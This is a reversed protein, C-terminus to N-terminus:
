PYLLSNSWQGDDGLSWRARRHLRHPEAFWFEARDAQLLYGGWHPPREVTAGAFRAKTKAFRAEMTARDALSQSQLSAWAGLQSDRDRSAFYADSEDAGLKSVLGEFRAQVGLGVTKWHFCLAARPNAALQAAKASQYNSFFRLGRADVGKLLVMRVSLRGESDASALAMATPEPDSAAEAKAILDQLTEIIRPDLAKDQM